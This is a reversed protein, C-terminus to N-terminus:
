KLHGNKRLGENNKTNLKQDCFTRKDARADRKGISVAITTYMLENMAM